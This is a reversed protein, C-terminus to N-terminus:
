SKKPKVFSLIIESLPPLVHESLEKAVAMRTEVAALAAQKACGRAIEAEKIAVRGKEIFSPKRSPDALARALEQSAKDPAVERAIKEIVDDDIKIMREAYEVMHSAKEDKERAVTAAMVAKDAM